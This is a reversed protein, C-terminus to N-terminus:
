KEYLRQHLASEYASQLFKSLPRNEYKEHEAIVEGHDADSLYGQFHLWGYLRPTTEVKLTLQKEVYRRALKEDTMVGFTMIRYAVAICSLEGSGLGKPAGRTIEALDDIDCAQVPFAGTKRAQRLRNILETKEPTTSKRPKFLCEFLVMPTICFYVKASCAAQFLRRTSMLNWVSCTDTVLMQHFKRPDFFMPLIKGLFRPLM